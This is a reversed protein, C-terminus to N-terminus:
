LMMMSHGRFPLPIIETKSVVGVAVIWPLGRFM